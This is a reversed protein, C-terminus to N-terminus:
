CVDEYFVVRVKVYLTISRLNYMGGTSPSKLFNVQMRGITSSGYKIDLWKASNIEINDILDSVEAIQSNDFWFVWEMLFTDFIGSYPYPIFSFTMLPIAEPISDSDFVPQVGGDLIDGEDCGFIFSQIGKQVKDIHM